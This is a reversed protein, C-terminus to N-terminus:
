TLAHRWRLRPREMTPDLADLHDRVQEQARDLARVRTAHDADLVLEWGRTWSQARATRSEPRDKEPM